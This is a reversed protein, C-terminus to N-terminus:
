DEKKRMLYILNVCTLVALLLLAWMVFTVILMNVERNIMAAGASAALLCCTLLLMEGREGTLLQKIFQTFVSSNMAIAYLNKKNLKEKEM